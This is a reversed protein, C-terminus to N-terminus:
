APGQPHAFEEGSADVIDILRHEDGRGSPSERPEPDVLDNTAMAEPFLLPGTVSDIGVHPAM